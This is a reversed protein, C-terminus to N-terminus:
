GERGTMSGPGQCRNQRGFLRRHPLQCYGTKSARWVEHPIQLSCAGFISKVVQLTMGGFRLELIESTTAGAVAHFTQSDCFFPSSESSSWSSTTSEAAASASRRQLTQSPIRLLEQSVQLSPHPLHQRVPPHHRIQCYWHRYQSTSNCTNFVINHSITHIPRYQHKYQDTNSRSNFQMPIYESRIPSHIPMLIPVLQFYLIYQTQIKCKDNNANANTKIITCVVYWGSAHWYMSNYIPM